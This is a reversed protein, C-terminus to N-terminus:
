LPEDTLANSNRPDRGDIHKLFSQDPCIDLRIPRGMRQMENLKFIILNVNVNMLSAIQDYSYGQVLYDMLEKEDLLLHSAFINAETEMADKINFLEFEILQGSGAQAQHYLEHGLEHALVMRLLRRDIFPNYFVFRKGLIIKYMGLLETNTKFPILKVDREKLILQPDRSEYRRILDQADFYIHDYLNAM